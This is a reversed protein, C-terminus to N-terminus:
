AGLESRGLASYTVHRRLEQTRISARWIARLALGNMGSTTIVAAVILSGGSVTSLHTVREMVGREALYRLVGLHFVAARIGGGSLALGLNRLGTSVCIGNDVSGAAEM